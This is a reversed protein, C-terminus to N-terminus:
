FVETVAYTVMLYDMHDFPYEMHQGNYFYVFHIM